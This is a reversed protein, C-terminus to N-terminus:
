YSQRPILELEFPIIDKFINLFFEQLQCIIGRGLIYKMYMIEFTKRDTHKSAVCSQTDICQFDKNQESYLKEARNVMLDLAHFRSLTFDSRGQKSEVIEESM